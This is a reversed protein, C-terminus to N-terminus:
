RKGKKELSPGVAGAVKGAVDLAQQARKARKTHWIGAIGGALALVGVVIGTIM